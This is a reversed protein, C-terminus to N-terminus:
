CFPFFFWHVLVIEDKDVFSDIFKHVEEFHPLISESEIDDIEVHYYSFTEPFFKYDEDNSANVVAKIKLEELNEKHQAQVITSIYLLDTVKTPKNTKM